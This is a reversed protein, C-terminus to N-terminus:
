GIRSRPIDETKGNRAFLDIRAYPAGNVTHDYRLTCFRPPTRVPGQRPGCAPVYGFIERFAIKFLPLGANRDDVSVFDKAETM